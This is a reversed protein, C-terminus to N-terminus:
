KQIAQVVFNLIDKAVEKKSKLPFDQVGFQASLISIKNTEHGFGAGADRISNLVVADLNKKQLKQFAHEKEHESELAFGVLFQSTKKKAGLTAAIDVNKTLQIKMEKGQKKIKEPQIEAAKYDAVAATFIVIDSTDFHKEAQVFMQEASQVNEVEVGHPVPIQVPGSVILVEAGAAKFAEAIAYGMKGTSHNSVFRVPDLHEVTPGATILVKKGKLRSDPEFFEVVSKLIDEPEAMRGKGSLGSALPGETPEIVLVNRSLLLSLNAQTAPHAFMDLDMAPAIMVACRASLYTAILLNDCNGIAMKSITSASAPAILLLDAWLGLEVHNTWTGTEKNSFEILVEHESLTALTLPGIFETAAQTMVVKVTAGAKKLLRVLTATKYAAISGSVGVLIKKGELM